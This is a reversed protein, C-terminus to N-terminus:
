GADRSGGADELEDLFVAPGKVPVFFALIIKWIVFYTYGQQGAVVPFPKSFLKEWLLFL